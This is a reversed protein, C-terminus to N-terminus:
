SVPERCVPQQTSGITAEDEKAGICPPSRPEGRTTYVLLSAAHVGGPSARGGRMYLLVPAAGLGEAISAPFCLVCDASGRLSRLPSACGFNRLHVIQVRASRSFSAGRKHRHASGGSRIHLSVILAPQLMCVVGIPRGGWFAYSKFPHRKLTSYLVGQVHHKRVDSRDDGNLRVPLPVCAPQSAAAAAAATAAALRALCGIHRDTTHSITSRHDRPSRPRGDTHM